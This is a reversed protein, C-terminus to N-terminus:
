TGKLEHFLVTRSEGNIVFSSSLRAIVRGGMRRVVRRKVGDCELVACLLKKFGSRSAQEIHESVLRDTDDLCEDRVFFDLRGVQTEGHPYVKQTQAIGVVTEERDALVSACGGDREIRGMMEPFVTLFRTPPAYRSSVIGNVLDFTHMASPHISLLSTSVFDGWDLARVETRGPNEESFKCIAEEPELMRRMVIGRHEDFGMKQYLGVAPNERNVGLYIARCGRATLYEISERILKQGIGQHRYREEVVIPGLIANRPFIRHYLVAAAGVIRHGAKALIFTGGLRPSLRGLLVSRLSYNAYELTKLYVREIEWVMDPSVPASVNVIKM